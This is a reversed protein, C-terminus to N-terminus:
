WYYIGFSYADLASLSIASWFYSGQAFIGKLPNGKIFITQFYIIYLYLYM